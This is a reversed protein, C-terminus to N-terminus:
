GGRPLFPLFRKLRATRRHRAVERDIMRQDSVWNVQVVRREGEFPAHGHFSRDSRRFAVLAGMEPAVEAAVDELDESGLLRLRGGDSDWGGSLYVLVSLIKWATDTHVRGDRTHCRGRVTVLTPCGALPMGFKAALTAEFDPGRLEALLAGFGPGYALESVPFSGAHTIRPFDRELLARAEPRILDRAVVFDFPDRRLPADRLAGLNLVPAGDGAPRREPLATM